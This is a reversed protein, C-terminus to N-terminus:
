KPQQGTSSASTSAGTPPPMTGAATDPSMGGVKTAASDTGLTSSPTNTTTDGAQNGGCAGLLLGGCLLAVPTLYSKLQLM